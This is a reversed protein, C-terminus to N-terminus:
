FPRMFGVCALRDSNADKTLDSGTKPNLPQRQIKQASSVLLVFLSLACALDCDCACLWFCCHLAFLSFHSASSLMLFCFSCVCVCVFVCFALSLDFALAFLLLLRFDCIPLLM